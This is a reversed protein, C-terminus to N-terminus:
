LSLWFLTPGIVVVNGNLEKSDNIIGSIRDHVAMHSAVDWDVKIKPLSM